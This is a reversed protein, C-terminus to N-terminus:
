VLRMSWGNVDGNFSSLLDTSDGYYYNYPDGDLGLYSMDKIRSVDWNSVDM